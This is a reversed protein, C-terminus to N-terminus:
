CCSTGLIQHVLYNVHMLDCGYMWRMEVDCHVFHRIFSPLFADVLSFMPYRNFRAFDPVFQHRLLAKDFDIVHQYRSELTNPKTNPFISEGTTSLYIAPFKPIEIIIYNPLDLGIANWKNNLFRIM